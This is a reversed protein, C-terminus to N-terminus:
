SDTSQKEDSPEKEEGPDTAKSKALKPMWHPNDTFVASVWVDVLSEPLELFETMTLQSLILLTTDDACTISKTAAICAPFTHQYYMRLINLKVRNEASLNDTDVLEPYDEYLRKEGAVVLETRYMGQMVSAQRVVIVVEYDDDKYRIESTRM